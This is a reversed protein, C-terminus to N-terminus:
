RDLGARDRALEAASAAFLGSPQSLQARAGSWAWAALGAYIVTLVLGSLWRWGDPSLLLVALSFMFLAGGAMLLALLMQVLAGFLRLKEAELESSLLEVRTQLLELLLRALRGLPRAALGAAAAAGGAEQRSESRPGTENM